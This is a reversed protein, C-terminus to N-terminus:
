QLGIQADLAPHRSVQEELHDRTSKRLRASIEFETQAERKRKLQVLTQAKLYHVSASQGDLKEAENLDQLALAYRGNAKYIKALGLYATASRPNLKITRQFAQEAEVSQGLKLCVGALEQYDFPLDPEIGLDTQFEEKAQTYRGEGVAIMGLSYHVFPLHPDLRAAQRLENSAEQDRQRLLWARGMFLHYEASGNGVEFLRGLAQKELPSDAAKNASLALVYLYPLKTNESAWLAKLDSTARRYKETAFYCLGILYRAQVSSPSSKLVSEFPQIAAAFDEEHFYVLGINLELGPNNPAEREALQLEKLAQTWNKRRMYVVGLNALAPVSNPEGELVKRFAAEATGLDGTELAARGGAFTDAASQALCFERGACFLFLVSISALKCRM